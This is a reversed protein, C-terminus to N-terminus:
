KGGKESKSTTEPKSTVEPTAPTPIEQLYGLATLTKVYEHTDPLTVEKGAHLIIEQEKGNVLLTVGSTPGTYIFRKM